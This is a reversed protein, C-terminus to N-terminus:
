QRASPIQDPSSPFFCDAHFAAPPLGHQQVLAAYLAQVMQPSGCAYVEYGSTDHIDELVAAPIHGVRGNWGDTARPRSLLPTFRFNPLLAQWREIRPMFYLDERTRGGWYLHMETAPRVLTLHEILAQVPAMGTGTSAFLVPKRSTDDIVFDGFPGRLRIIDNVQMREFVYDSFRGGTRRRIHLEITGDRSPLNSISYSRPTEGRMVVDIYQGPIENLRVTRPLRITCVMVDGFRDMSEVLGAFSRSGGKNMDGYTELTLDTIARACCLLAYGERREAETLSNQAGPPYDVAGDLV